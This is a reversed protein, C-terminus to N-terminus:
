SLKICTFLLYTNCMSGTLCISSDLRTLPYLYRTLSTRGRLV